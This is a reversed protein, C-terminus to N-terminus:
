HWSHVFIELKLQIIRANTANFLDMSFLNSIKEFVTTIFKLYVDAYRIEWNADQFVEMVESGAKWIKRIKTVM